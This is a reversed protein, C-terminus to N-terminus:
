FQFYLFPIEQQCGLNLVCVTLFLYATWRMWLPFQELKFGKIQLIQVIALLVPFTLILSTGTLDANTSTTSILNQQVLLDQLKGGTLLRSIIYWAKNVSSARFFIWTFTVFLYTIIGHMFNILAPKRNLRAANMIRARIPQTFKVLIFALGHLAGWVVFTWNAGHWLGSVLFVILINIAWRQGSVRNGGLPIYVYDRFWTSLSIHWRTWFESISCSFYPCFFNRRLHYGLVRACGIAINSYGAFDCFIQIGFLVAALLYHNGSYLEPTNFIPTVFHGLNDAIVVKQFMGWLMLRLGEVVRHYEFSNKKHFQPLLAESREIPGAVLQPFFSVYLAFLGLHKEPERKGQYVDISYSLTQFTYFSIGIPLLVNLHPLKTQIDFASFLGEISNTFFGLYKFIFLLGLNGILSLWLFKKRKSKQAEKGMELGAYYDIGTSLIILLIYAPNWFMYFFYSAVLLLVWRFRFPIAFYLFSVIPFFILFPISNFTM